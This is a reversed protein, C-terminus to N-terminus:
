QHLRKQFRLPLEACSILFEVMQVVSSFAVFIM